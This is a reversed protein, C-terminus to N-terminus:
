RRKWNEWVFPYQYTLFHTRALNKHIQIMRAEADPVFDHFQVQINDICRAFESEILHDLLEYEGGEINIKVLDIAIINNQHMFETAQILQIQESESAQKFMSSGDGSLAISVVKTENSLGHRHVIIKNNKAFRREIKAAFAGVPEFIHIACRFRAFIDSAWQGEYGGVDFVLSQEDLDYDLRLTKDGQDRFWSAVRTESPSQYLKKSAWLCVNASEALVRSLHRSIEM